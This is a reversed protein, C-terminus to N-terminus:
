ATKFIAPSFAKASVSVTDGARLGQAEDDSAIVEVIDQGILLSVIHVVEERRVALVQAQLNLRGRLRQQLFVEAPTGARAICGGDLQLVRDSLKFVEGIDHSVLLTTLGFRQQLQRLDDQLRARLAADLASLPEDLLLLQPKRALARALAGRKQQGGSLRRPVRAQRGHPFGGGRPHAPPTPQPFPAHDPFVFGTARQQPPLNIRKDSDFWVVGDVVIRGSDPVTLGALMRLTTTKGCGSPGFLTCLSGRALEAQVSLQMCGHVTDLQKNLTIAIL